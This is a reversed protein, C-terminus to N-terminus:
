QKWRILNNHCDDQQARQLEQNCLRVQEMAIFLKSDFVVVGGFSPYVSACQVYLGLLPELDVKIKHLRKKANYLAIEAEAIKYQQGHYRSPGEFIPNSFFTLLTKM